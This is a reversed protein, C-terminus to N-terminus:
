RPRVFVDASVGFRKCLKGIQRANLERRGALVQSVVSQNGIEPLESQKLEHQEMLFKLVEVPPADPLNYHEDDYAEIHASITDVLRAIKGKPTGYTDLLEDLMAVASDYEKENAIVGVPARKRLQDLETAITMLQASM